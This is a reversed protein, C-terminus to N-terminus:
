LPFQMTFVTGKGPQTTFRITGGLQNIINKAIALGLGMGSTKTTFNPMFMKPRLETPIGRGNDSVCIEVEKDKKELEVQIKGKKDEPISQIGNKIINILARSLQDRDSKVILKEHSSTFSITYTISGDFLRVCKGVVDVIDTDGPKIDPMKAFNSFESAIASLNDIQEILTASVGELYKDFDERKDNWLKHLQQISLRM